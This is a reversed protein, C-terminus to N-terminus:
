QTRVDPILRKALQDFFDDNVVKEDFHIGDRFAEEPYYIIQDPYSKLEPIDSDGNVMIEERLQQELNHRAESDAHPGPILHFTVGESECLTQLEYLYKYSVKSIVRDTETTFLENKKALMNLYLKMSLPSQDILKVVPRQCFFRGYRKAMLDRTEDDLNGITDTLVFPMVAYQYGLKAGYGTGLSGMTLILYIDTVNEHNKIFEKALIYQGSLSIAQNSGCICYVDNMEYYREFIQNCVSDGIILKSCDNKEQVREVFPVIEKAGFDEYAYDGSGTLDAIKMRLNEQASLVLFAGSIMLFLCVFLFLKLFFKKM